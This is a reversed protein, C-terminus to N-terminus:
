LPLGSSVKSHVCHREQPHCRRGAICLGNRSEPPSTASPRVLRAPELGPVPDIARSFRASRRPFASNGPQISRAPGLPIIMTRARSRFRVPTGAQVDDHRAQLCLPRGRMMWPTPPVSVEKSTGSGRCFRYLRGTTEGTGVAVFHAAEVPRRPVALCRLPLTTRRCTTRCSREEGGFM